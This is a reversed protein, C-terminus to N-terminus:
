FSVTAATIQDIRDMEVRYTHPAVKFLLGDRKFEAVVRSATEKTIGCIAAMDGRPILRIDGNRDSGIQAQMRLLYAIRSRATGSNLYLIWEDARDLHAQLKQRVRDCLEPHERELEGLTDLPIQCLDVDGVTVATHRYPADDLLELGIVAGKGLLRVIRPGGNDEVQLKVLGRRISYVATGPTKERYLVADSGYHQNDIPQLLQSFSTEPLSSFMMLSRVGCHVCDARGEWSPNTCYSSDRGKVPM